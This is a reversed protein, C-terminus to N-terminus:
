SKNTIENLQFSDTKATLENGGDEKSVHFQDIIDNYIDTTREKHVTSSFRKRTITRYVDRLREFLPVSEHGALVVLLLLGGILTNMSPVERYAFFVLLPGLVTELLICLGIEPATIYRPAIALAVFAIGIGAGQGVVALWFKWMEEEWFLNPSVQGRLIILSIMTSIAAGLPTGGVLSVDYQGAKRVICLYIALMLGTFISILIGRFSTSITAATTDDQQATNGHEDEELVM